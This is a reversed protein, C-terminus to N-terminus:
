VKPSCRFLHLSIWLVSFFDSSFSNTKKKKKKQLSCFQHRLVAKGIFSLSTYLFCVFNKQSLCVFNKEFSFLLCFWRFCNMLFFCVFLFTGTKVGRESSLNSTVKCFPPDVPNRVLLARKFLIDQIAYSCM